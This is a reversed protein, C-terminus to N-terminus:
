MDLASALASFPFKFADQCKILMYTEPLKRRAPPPTWAQPALSPLAGRCLFLAVRGGGGKQRLMGAEHGRWTCSPRPHCKEKRGSLLMGTEAKQLPLPNFAAPGEASPPAPSSSVTQRAGSRLRSDLLRSPCCVEGCDRDEARAQTYPHMHISVHTHDM